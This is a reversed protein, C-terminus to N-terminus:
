EPTVSSFICVCIIVVRVYGYARMVHMGAYVFAFMHAQWVCACVAKCICVYFPLGPLNILPPRCCLPQREWKMPWRPLVPMLKNLDLGALGGCVSVYKCVCVCARARECVSKRWRSLLHWGSDTPFFTPLPFFSLCAPHIFFTFFLFVSSINLFLTRNVGVGVFPYSLALSLRRPEEDYFAFIEHGHVAARRLVCM